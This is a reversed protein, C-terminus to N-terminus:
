IRLVCKIMYVRSFDHTEPIRCELYSIFSRMYTYLNTPVGQCSKNRPTKKYDVVLRFVGLIPVGLGM